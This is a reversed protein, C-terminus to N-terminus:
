DVKIETSHITPERYVNLGLKCGTSGIARNGATTAVSLNKGSGTPVGGGKLHIKIVLVDGLVQVMMNERPNQSPQPLRMLEATAEANLGANSVTSVATSSKAM